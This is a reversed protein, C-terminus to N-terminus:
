GFRRRWRSLARPIAVTLILTSVVGVAGCLVFSPSQGLDQTSFYGFAAASAAAVIIQTSGLMLSPWNIQTHM